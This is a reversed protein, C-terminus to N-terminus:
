WAIDLGLVHGIGEVTNHKRAIAISVVYILVERENVIYDGKLVNM